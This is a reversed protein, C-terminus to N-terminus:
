QNQRKNYLTKASEIIYAENASSFNICSDYHTDAGYLTNYIKSQEFGELDSKKLLQLLTTLIDKDKPNKKYFSILFPISEWGDIEILATKYNLGLSRNRSAQNRILDIIRKKNDKMFRLQRESWFVGNYVFLLHGFIKKQPEFVFMREACAQSYIEPYIMTYTFKEEFSLKDFNTRSIGADYDVLAEDPLSKLRQKVLDQVKKLGFPPISARERMAYYLSDKSRPEDWAADKYEQGFSPSSIFGLLILWCAWIKNVKKKM